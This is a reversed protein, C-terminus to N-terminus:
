LKMKWIRDQIAGSSAFEDETPPEELSARLPSVSVWGKEIAWADSGEPLSSPQLDILGSM